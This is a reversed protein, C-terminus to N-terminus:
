FIFSYNFIGATGLLILLIVNVMQRRQFPFDKESKKLVAMVALSALLYVAPLSGIARLSQPSEFDLSFIGPALMILLWGILLVPIFKRIRSLSFAIGMVLLTGSIPDLMPKGPINHRGNRDGQYNFMLLHERTTEVVAKLAEETTNSTFISTMKTRSFFTETNTMAYKTVPISAVVMALVIVSLGNKYIKFVNRQKSFSVSFDFHNCCSIIRLPVYFGLGLGISIGAFTFFLLRNSKLALLIFGITLLEFFPVTVGHM